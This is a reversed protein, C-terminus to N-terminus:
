AASSSATALRGGHLTAAGCAWLGVAFGVLLGIPEMFGPILWVVWEPFGRVRYGRRLGKLM